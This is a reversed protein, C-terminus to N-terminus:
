GRNEYEIHIYADAQSLISMLGSKGLLPIAIRRGNEYVM